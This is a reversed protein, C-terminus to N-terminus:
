SSSPGIPAASNASSGSSRQWSTGMFARLFPDRTDGACATNEVQLRPILPPGCDNRDNECDGEKSGDGTVLLADMAVYHGSTTTNKTPAEAQWRVRCQAGSARAGLLAAETVKDRV